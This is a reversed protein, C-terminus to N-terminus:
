QNKSKKYNPDRILHMQPPYNLNYNQILLEYCATKQDAKIASGLSEFINYLKPLDNALSSAGLIKYSDPMKILLYQRSHSYNTKFGYFSIKGNKKKAEIIKAGMFLDKVMDFRKPNSTDSPPIDYFQGEKLLFDVIITDIKSTRGNPFENKQATAKNFGLVNVWLLLLFILKYNGM